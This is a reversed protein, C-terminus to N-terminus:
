LSGLRAGSLEDRGHPVHDSGTVLCVQACWSEIPLSLARGLISGVM